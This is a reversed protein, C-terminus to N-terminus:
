SFDIPAAPMVDAAAAAVDCPMGLVVRQLDSVLAYEGLIDREVEFRDEGKGVGLDQREVEESRELLKRRSNIDIHLGGAFPQVQARDRSRQGLESALDLSQM